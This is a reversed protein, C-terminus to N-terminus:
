TKEICFVMEMNSAPPVNFYTIDLNNADVSNPSWGDGLGKGSDGEWKQISLRLMPFEAGLCHRVRETITKSNNEQNDFVVEAFVINPNTPHNFVNVM